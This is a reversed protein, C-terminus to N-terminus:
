AITKKSDNLKKEHRRESKRALRQFIFAISVLFLIIAINEGLDNKFYEWSLKADKDNPDITLGIILMASFSNIIYFLTHFVWGSASHPVYLLFAKQLFSHEDNNTVKMKELIEFEDNKQILKNLRLSVEDKLEAFQEDSTVERQAQLWTKWFEVQEKAQQLSRSKAADASRDSLWKLIVPTLGIIAAILPIIEKISM